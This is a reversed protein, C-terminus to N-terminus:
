CPRLPWTSAPSCREPSPSSTQKGPALQPSQKWKALLDPAVYGAYANDMAAAAMAVPALVSVQGLRKGFEGVVTRVAQEQDASAATSAPAQARAASFDGPTLLALATVLCKLRM